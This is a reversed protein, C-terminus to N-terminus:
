SAGAGSRTGERAAESLRQMQGLLGVVDVDEDAFLPPLLLDNEKNVHVDFLESIEGSAATAAGPTKTSALAETLALLRQHEDLMQGVVGALEARAAAARYISQEEAAAHPLVEDGLFAVLEAVALEYGADGAVGTDAEDVAKQVARVRQGVQEGLLAHHRLMAEHAETRSMTTM